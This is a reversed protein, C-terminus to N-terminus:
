GFQKLYEEVSEETIERKFCEECLTDSMNILHVTDTLEKGCRDCFLKKTGDEYIEVM